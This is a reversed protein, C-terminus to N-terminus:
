GNNGGGDQTAQAQELASQIVQRPTGGGANAMVRTMQGPSLGMQRLAKKLLENQKGSLASRSIYGTKDGTQIFAAKQEKTMNKRFLADISRLGAKGSGPGGSQKTFDKLATRSGM